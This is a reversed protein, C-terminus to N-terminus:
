FLLTVINNGAQYGLDNLKKETKAYTKEALAILLLTKTPDASGLDADKYLVNEGASEAYNDIVMYDHIGRKELKDAVYKGVWGFGYIVIKFDTHFHLNDIKGDILRQKKLHLTFSADYTRVAGGFGLKFEAIAKLADNYDGIGGYDYVEYGLEQFALLDRYHLLRNARGTLNKYEPNKNERFLSASTALMVRKEKKDLYYAHEALVDDSSNLCKTIAYMHQAALARVRIGDIHHMKKSDAFQNYYGIYAEVDNESPEVAIATHLKDRNVARRIEYRTNKRMRSVIEGAPRRLDCELSQVPRKWHGQYENFTMIMKYQEYIDDDVNRPYWIQLVDFMSYKKEVAERNLGDSWYISYVSCGNDHYQFEM